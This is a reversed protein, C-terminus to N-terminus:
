KKQWFLNLLHTLSSTDGVYRIGKWHAPFIERYEREAFRDDILLVMGRDEETRIVRGAAQLVRNMGPYLYAYARGQENIGDFYAAIAERENTLAPMGVGVIVAGILRRGVLDVGEGYIGGTVCFGILASKNDERFANLFAQRESTSMQPKQVMVPLGPAARRFAETLRQMYPYSPCFVMYNGPRCKVATLIARVVARLTDERESTRVSIKDMVALCLHERDFPSGAELTLSKGDGGLLDRYFDVPTLTASFFVASKGHSLREDICASPDLCVVRVSSRGGGTEYFVRFHGDFRALKELLHLLSFRLDSLARRRDRLRTEAIAKEVAYLLVYLTEPLDPPLVESSSFGVPRGDAGEETEGKLERNLIDYLLSAVAQASSAVEPFAAFYKATKEYYVPSLYSSYMERAREPLNHSEDVLFTYNGTGEFYRRLYVRLDFLYNYDCIIIDCYMSYRLGLEYTCVEHAAAVERLIEETVVPLSRALLDRAAEDERTPVHRSLPCGDGRCALGRTCAREKSPLSIARIDAGKEHLLLVTDCAAKATTNKPTLYFAKEIHGEGIARVAPYLVSVTKGIGTPACAYLRKQRRIAAYTMECLDRQGERVASYPFKVAALTPMRVTVRRIEPEANVTLSNMLRTFFARLASVTPTELTVYPEECDPHEYLIRLTMHRIGTTSLLIYAALFAEGRAQRVTDSTPRDPPTSVRHLFTLTGGEAYDAHATIEYEIHEHEVKLVFTEPREEGLLARRREPPVARVTDEEETLYSVAHRMRALYVLEAGDICLLDRKPDYRM